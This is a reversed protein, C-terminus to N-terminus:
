FDPLIECKMGVKIYPYLRVLEENRVRVCGESCRTGISEPFRTGHIGISNNGPVNLRFFYPGYASKVNGKGNNFNHTWQSSNCIQSIYFVGEPTRLDGEEQKQGLNKGCGIPTTFLTDCLNERQEIVYLQLHQKDILLSTQAYVPSSYLVMVLLLLHHIRKFTNLCVKQPITEYNFLVFCRMRIKAKRRGLIQRVIYYYSM